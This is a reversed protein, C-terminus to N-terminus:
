YVILLCLAGISRKPLGLRGLGPLSWALFLPVLPLSFLLLWLGLVFVMASGAPSPVMLSVLFLDALGTRVPTILLLAIGFVLSRILLPRREEAFVDRLREANM